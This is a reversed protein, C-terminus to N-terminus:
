SERYPVEIVLGDNAAVVDPFVARAERELTRPDDAYRPSFHTIALRLAGASVAIEAAERATSHGTQGARDAEDQAFTAEHILLDAGRAHERTGACPRTDGTYVVRRGPREAGVIDEPRYVRGDVEVAEGHHLKGWLPGEPIGLERAKDANFRGLRPHEVVAYGLSPGGRHSTKYPVVDYVGRRLTDGPALETIRVEFPVREVGLEVAQRLTDMTGRPTWLDVPEERAQLGLTRLLGIVGLFHDAHLHTFFIESFTFGTGFRMMQRQTGEGCDFMMVDGERQLILSSVNRGVTPRAAATGLFTIRM